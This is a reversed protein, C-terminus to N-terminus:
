GVITPEPIPVIFRGGRAVYEAQQSMIEDKFNWPLIVAYDPMQRVLDEAPRIPIRVGPVWRGHKHDNRDVVFEITDPGAGVYNLM